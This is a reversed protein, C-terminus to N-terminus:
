GTEQTRSNELEKQVLVLLDRLTDPAAGSSSLRLVRFRDMFAEQFDDGWEQDLAENLHLDEQLRDDLRVKGIPIGRVIMFEFIFRAVEPNIGGTGAYENWRDIDLDPRSAVYVQLRELAGAVPAGGKQYRRMEKLWAKLGSYM